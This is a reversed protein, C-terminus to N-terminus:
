SAWDDGLGEQNKDWSRAPFISVNQAGDQGLAQSHQCESCARGTEKTAQTMHCFGWSGPDPTRALCVRPHTKVGAHSHELAANMYM